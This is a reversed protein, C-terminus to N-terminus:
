SLNPIAMKVVRGRLLVALIISVFAIVSATTFIMDFAVDSLFSRMLGNVNLISQNMQMYMAALAPGIASGIIRILTAIGLSIGSYEGPTALIIVNMAAVGAFSLGTALLGLNVSVQM